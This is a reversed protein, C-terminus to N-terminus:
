KFRRQLLVAAAVVLGIAALVLYLHECAVLQAQQDVTRSLVELAGQHADQAGYGRAALVGEMGHLWQAVEPRDPSVHPLLEARADLQQEQLGVAAVATALSSALQRVLNKTAYGQGWREGLQSFTLNAVPLIALMGFVGKAVLGPWLQAHAVGAPMQAFWWASFVLAALGLALQPRRDPFRRAARMYVFVALLSVLSSASNMWGTAEISFGLGQQAYVPFLYSGTNSLLYYVFYLGLGILFTPNGLERFPLLPAHHRWQHWFFAAIAAVAAVGLVLLHAPQSLFDYRASLLLWQLAFVGLAFGALALLPWPQRAAQPHADPLLWAAGVLAIAAPPMAGFFVWSWGGADVLWAAVIPAAATSGLVWLIFVRVAPAREAPPFMLNVLIRSSTFLAGGGLGQVFRAAALGGVSTSLGSALCGALFLALSAAVYRRYGFRRSLWQQQVIMLLSGAAYSGQIAVLDHPAGEVGGLIHGAAFVFMLNEFFEVGVALGLLNMALRKRLDHSVLTASM